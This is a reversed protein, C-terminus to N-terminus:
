KIEPSNDVSERGLYGRVVEGDSWPVLKGGALAMLREGGKGSILVIDGPSALSLARYIAERRDIIKLLTNGETLKGGRVAGQAVDEIIRLPSEDYPDENTIIVIDAYQKALAGMVPRKAKDRGGGQAGLVAIIRRPHLLHLAEYAATLSAPEHAYDVFVRFGKGTAIEELRGAPLRAHQLADQINNLPVGLAFCTAVAALANRVNHAGIFPVTMAVSRVTFRCQLQGLVVQEARLVEDAAPFSNGVGYIITKESFYKKFFQLSDDDGNLVSIKPIRVADIAKRYSGALAAFLKGKTERYTEFSGHSEIHEPTLNSLVAVDYDIGIQRHQSIGESTTEIVAYRCGSDAMRRLMKQIIFPGPMTMKTMNPAASDHWSFELGSTYGVKYGQHRLIHAILHVITTKGKTGTVGIVIMRRSPYGFRRAALGALAYHYSLLWPLPIVRKVLEKIEHVFVAFM